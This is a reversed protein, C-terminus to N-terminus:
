KTRKILTKHNTFNIYLLRQRLLYISSFIINNINIFMIKKIIYFSIHKYIYIFM